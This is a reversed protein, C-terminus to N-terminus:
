LEIPIDTNKWWPPLVRSCLREHQLAVAHMPVNHRNRAACASVEADNACRMTRVESSYGLAAAVLMYPAIELATTNTNDVLIEPWGAQCATIFMAMCAAHAESLKRPDFCYVGGESMFFRDASVVAVGEKEGAYTSKGSGSIGSLVIVSRM